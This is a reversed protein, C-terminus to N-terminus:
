AIKLLGFRVLGVSGDGIKRKIQLHDYEIIPCNLNELVELSSRRSQQASAPQQSGDSMGSLANGGCTVKSQGAMAALGSQASLEFDATGEANEQSQAMQADAWQSFRQAEPSDQGTMVQRPEDQSHSTASAAFTQHATASPHTSNGGQGSDPQPKSTDTQSQASASRAQHSGAHILSPAGQLSPGRCAADFPSFMSSKSTHSHLRGAGEQSLELADSPQPSGEQAHSHRCVADFPSTSAGWSTWSPQMSAVGQSQQELMSLRRHAEVAQSQWSSGSTPKSAQSLQPKRLTHEAHSPPPPMAQTVHGINMDSPGASTDDLVSPLETSGSHFAALERGATHQAHIQASDFSSIQGLAHSNTAPITQASEHRSSKDVGRGPFAPSPAAQPTSEAPSAGLLSQFAGLVEIAQDTSVQLQGASAHLYSIYLFTILFTCQFTCLILIPTFLDLASTM